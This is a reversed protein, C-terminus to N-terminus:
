SSFFYLERALIAYVFSLFTLFDMVARLVYAMEFYALKSGKCAIFSGQTRNLSCQYQFTGRWSPQVAADIRQSVYLLLLLNWRMLKGEEAKVWDSLHFVIWANPAERARVWGPCKLLVCYRPPVILHCFQAGACMINHLVNHLIDCRQTRALIFVSPCM